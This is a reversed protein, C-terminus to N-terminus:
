LHASKHPGRQLLLEIQELTWDPGCDVPCGNKAYTNLLPCAQHDLAYSQPWMLGLKGISEKIPLESPLGPSNDIQQHLDQKAEEM